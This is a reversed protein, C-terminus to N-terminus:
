NLPEDCNRKRVTESSYSIRQNLGKRQTKTLIFYNEQEQMDQSIM